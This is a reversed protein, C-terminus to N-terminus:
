NRPIHLRGALTPSKLINTCELNCHFVASGLMGAGGLIILIPGVKSGEGGGIGRDLGIAFAILLLGTLVTGLNFLLGRIGGVGGLVSITQTRHEYGPELWGLVLVLATLLIPAVIGAYAPM